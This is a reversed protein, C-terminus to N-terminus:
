GMEQKADSKIVSGTHDAIAYTCNRLKAGHLAEEVASLMTNLYIHKGHMTVGGFRIKYPIEINHDVCSSTNVCQQIQVIVNPLDDEACDNLLIFFGSGGFRGIIDSERICAKITNYLHQLVANGVAYSRRVNIKELEVIDVLLMSIPWKKRRALKVQINGMKVFFAYNYAGTVEDLSRCEKLQYAVKQNETQLKKIKKYQYYLLALLGAVLTGFIAYQALIM